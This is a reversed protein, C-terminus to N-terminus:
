LVLSFLQERVVLFGYNESHISGSITKCDQENSEVGWTNAATQRRTSVAVFFSSCSTAHGFDRVEAYLSALYRFAQDDPTGIYVGNVEWKEGYMYRPFGADYPYNAVLAGGHLNASVVFPYRRIWNMVSVAEPVLIKKKELEYSEPIPLHNNPGNVGNIMYSYTTTTLDPFSRNLDRHKSNRRGTHPAYGKAGKVINVQVATRYGDPNMSPMIHVRTSNLIAEVRSSNSRWERCLYQAYSILLERGLVEDGHINGIWKMEPELPDHRGPNTSLELVLLPRDDVSHGVKYLRSIEPCVELVKRLARQLSGMTKHHRHEVVIEKSNRNGNPKAPHLRRLLSKRRVCRNRPLPKCSLFSPWHVRNEHLLVECRERIGTCVRRCPYIPKSQVPEYFKCKPALTSCALREIQLKCERRDSGDETWDETERRFRQLIKFQDSEMIDAQSRHGFSNPLYIWKQTIGRCVEITSYECENGDVASNVAAAAFNVSVALLFLCTIAAAATTTMMTTTPLQGGM